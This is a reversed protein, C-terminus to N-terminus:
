SLGVVGKQGIQKDAKNSRAALGKQRATEANFLDKNAKKEVRRTARENKVAQKRAKKDEKTESRHRALVGPTPGQQTEDEQSPSADPAEEEDTPAQALDPQLSPFGTKPDLVIRRPQEEQGAMGKAQGKKGSIDRLRIMKPHNELNSRTSLVTQCDWRDKQPGLQDIAVGASKEHKGQEELRDLQAARELIYRKNADEDNLDLNRLAQRMEELKAYKQPNAHNIPTPGLQQYKSLFDDLIGSM